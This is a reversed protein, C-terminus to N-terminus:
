SFYTMAILFCDRPYFPFFLPGNKFYYKSWKEISLCLFEEYTGFIDKISNDFVEEKAKIYDHYKQNYENLFFLIVGLYVLVIFISFFLEIGQSKSHKVKKM